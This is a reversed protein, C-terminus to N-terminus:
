DGLYINEALEIVLSNNLVIILLDNSIMLKGLIPNNLLFALLDIYNHLVAGTAVNSFKNFLALLLLVTDGFFDDPLNESL